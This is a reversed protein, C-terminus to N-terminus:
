FSKRRCDHTATSVSPSSPLRFRPRPSTARAKESFVDGFSTKEPPASLPLISESESSSRPSLSPPSDPLADHAAGGHPLLNLVRRLFLSALTRDPASIAAHDLAPPAEDIPTVLM